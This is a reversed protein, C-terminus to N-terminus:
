ALRRATRRTRSVERYSGGLDLEYGTYHVFVDELTVDGGGIAVKLETPTGIAAVRGLHMIAVRDCLHDAEEMYHTTLLITTGFDKCLRQIHEWVAKRAIPDLGVTPEDLFLIRPRHLMSQAVELRRIMGGSYNRVLKDSVETLGMFDLSDRIRQKREDRPIRYLKAFILLNEYGTLAGDASVLQPVYGIVRRVSSAHKVVDYGAVWANGSTPPLLTTLMKIVTTKGAGNPGVLGFMEGPELSMTLGDVATLHGFRRTLSETELISRAVAGPKAVVETRLGLM